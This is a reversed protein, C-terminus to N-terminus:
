GGERRNLPRVFTGDGTRPDILYVGPRGFVGGACDGGRMVRVRALGQDTWGLAYTVPAKRWDREGTVVRARGGSAPIFFSHASDCPHDWQILLTKGDPSKRVSGWM